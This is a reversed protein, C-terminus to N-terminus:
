SVHKKYKKSEVAINFKSQAIEINFKDRNTNSKDFILKYTNNLYSNWYTEDYAINKSKIELKFLELKLLEKSLHEVENNEHTSINKLNLINKYEPHKEAFEKIPQSLSISETELLIVALNKNTNLIKLIFLDDLKVTKFAYQFFANKHPSQSKKENDFVLEIDQSTYALDKESFYNFIINVDSENIILSLFSHVQEPEIKIVKSKYIQVLTKAIEKSYDNNYDEFGNVIWNNVESQDLKM